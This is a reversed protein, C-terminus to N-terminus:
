KGVKRLINEAFWDRISIGDEIFKGLNFFGHIMGPCDKYVVDNGAAKLKEYYAVGDAKLVDYEATIMITPPLGELSKAAHPVAYPNSRGAVISSTMVFVNEPSLADAGHPMDRLIFYAGFAGGGGYRRYFNSDPEEYRVQGSGLDVFAIRGWHGAM